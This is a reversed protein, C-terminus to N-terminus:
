WLTGQMESTNSLAETQGVFPSKYGAGGKHFLSTVNGSFHVNALKDYKTHRGM